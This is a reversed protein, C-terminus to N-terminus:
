EASNSWYRTRWNHTSRVYALAATAFVSAFVGFQLLGIHLPPPPIAMANEPELGLYVALVAMINNAFHAVMPVLVSGSRLRLMGFFIGLVCLPVIQFPNLHYLGFITGAFIASVVPSLVREFARQILGRFLLEEVVSPIVAVVTAVFILESISSASVMTRMLSELMERLPLLFRQLYDPLPVMDQLVLYLEMLRQLAFLAVLASTMEWFAPLRLPFVRSSNRDFLRAFLLTPILVLVLQGFATLLRLITVNDATVADGGTVLFTLLGGGVQYLVFIVALVFFAFLMPHMGRSEVFSLREGSAANLPLTEQESSHPDTM